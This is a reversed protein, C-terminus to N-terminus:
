IELTILFISKAKHQLQNKEGYEDRWTRRHFADL